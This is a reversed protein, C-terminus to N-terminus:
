VNKRERAANVKKAMQTVTGAKSAWSETVIESASRGQVIASVVAYRSSGM